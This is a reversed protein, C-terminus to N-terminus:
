LLFSHYETLLRFSFEAIYQKLDKTTDYSHIISRLSVSVKYIKRPYLAKYWQILIFSVGYPSPFQIYETVEKIDKIFYSHIISRLSVSVWKKILFIYVVIAISIILIFSVGYPSPFLLYSIRVNLDQIYSHIISRLSVSVKCSWRKDHIWISKYSHIISRLSVSVFTDLFILYM